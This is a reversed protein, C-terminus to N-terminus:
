RVIAPRVLEKSRVNTSCCKHLAQTPKICAGVRSRAGMVWGRVPRDLLMSQSVAVRRRPEKKNAYGNFEDTSLIARRLIAVKAGVMTTTSNHYSTAHLYFDAIACRSDRCAGIM